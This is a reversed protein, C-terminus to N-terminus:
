ADQTSTKFVWLCLLYSTELRSITGLRRGRAGEGWGPDTCCLETKGSRPETWGVGGIGGGDWTM